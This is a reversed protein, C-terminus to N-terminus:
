GNTLAFPESNTGIIQAPVLSSGRPHDRVSVQLTGGWSGPDKNGLMGTEVVLTNAGPVASRDRLTVTSTKAGSGVIRVVYAESGANDFFGRLAYAGYAYTNNPFKVYSGFANVFDSFSTVHIPKNPIGRQSRVLFGAVSIPAAVITPAAQGDVEV